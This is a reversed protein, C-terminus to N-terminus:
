FDDMWYNDILDLIKSFYKSKKTFVSHNISSNSILNPKKGKTHTARPDDFGENGVISFVPSLNVFNECYSLFLLQADWTELPNIQAKKFLGLGKLKQSPKLTNWIKSGILKQELNTKSLDFDYRQWTEKSCAWGWLYPYRLTRWKNKVFKFHLPSFGSVIGISGESKHISLGNIMNSIFNVSIKVDDEIVIIYQHNALVKSIEGTVHKVLGLNNKHHNLNFCHLKSFKKQAYTKLEDMEITHSERGGDISIYLNEVKSEYIENIRKNLLEPRNFGLLLVGVESMSITTELKKVM